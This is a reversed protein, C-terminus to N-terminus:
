ELWREFEEKFQGAIIPRDFPAVDNGNIKLIKTRVNVARDTSNLNVDTETIIAVYPQNNHVTKGIFARNVKVDGWVLKEREVQHAPSIPVMPPFSERVKNFGERAGQEVAIKVQEINVEETMAEAEEAMAIVEQRLGWFLNEDYSGDKDALRASASIAEIMAANSRILLGILKGNM